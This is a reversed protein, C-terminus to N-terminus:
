PLIWVHRSMQNEYLPWLHLSVTSWDWGIAVTQPVMLVPAPQVLTAHWRKRSWEVAPVTRVVMLRPTITASAPGTSSLYPVVVLVVSGIMGRVLAAM